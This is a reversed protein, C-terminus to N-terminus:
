NPWVFSKAMPSEPDFWEKASEKYIPTGDKKMKVLILKGVPSGHPYRLRGKKDIVIKGKRLLENFGPWLHINNPTLEIVKQPEPTKM